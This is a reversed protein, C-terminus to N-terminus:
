AYIYEPHQYKLHCINPYVYGCIGHQELVPLPVRTYDSDKIFCECLQCFDGLLEILLPSSRRVDLYLYTLFQCQSLAQALNDSVDFKPCSIYLKKLSSYSNSDTPLRVLGYASSDIFLQKLSPLNPLVDTLDLTASGVNIHFHQLMRFAPLLAKVQLVYDYDYQDGDYTIYIAFLNIRALSICMISSRERKAVCLLYNVSLYRLKRMRSLIEWLSSVSGIYHIGMINLAALGACNSSIDALGLLSSFANTCGRIDLCVLKPCLESVLTLHASSLIEMKALCLSEISSPLLPMTITHALENLTGICVVRASVPNPSPSNGRSVILDSYDSLSSCISTIPCTLLEVNPYLSLRLIPYKNVVNGAIPSSNSYISLQAPHDSSTLSYICLYVNYCHLKLNPPMYGCGKWFNVAKVGFDTFDTQDVEDEAYIRLVKLSKSARAAKIACYESGTVTLCYLSPLQSLLRKLTNLKVSKFFMGTLSLYCIQKCKGIQRFCKANTFGYSEAVYSIHVYQVYSRSLGLALRLAKFDQDRKRYNKWVLSSWARPDSLFSYFRKCSIRLSLKDYAPLYDTIQLLVETPLSLLMSVQVEM